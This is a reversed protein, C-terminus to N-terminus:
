REQKAKLFAARDLGTAKLVAEDEPTLEATAQTAPPPTTQTQQQTLAALVPRQDLMAKLAAYGHQDGYRQLWDLESVFVRGERQSDALLTEVQHTNGTAKLSALQAVTANYTELPVFRAPDAQNAKLAAITSSAESAQAKLAALATLATQLQEDSPAQGDALEIGLSALIDLFEKSHMPYPETLDTPTDQDDLATPFKRAALAAVQALGDLGPDNTLAAMKIALPVGTTRDYPFVASLYRYEGKTLFAQANSTWRPKIFLGIGERWQMDKFWGAAPAPQGNKEAHLTQHEYDIVLENARASAQEILRAAIEGDLFWQGGPVDFPRGDVAAFHGAPLLQAWGDTDAAIAQALVAFGVRPAPQTPSPQSLSLNPTTM